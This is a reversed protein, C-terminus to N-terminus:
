VPLCCPLGAPAKKKKQQSLVSDAHILSAQELQAEARPEARKEGHFGARCDGQSQSTHDSSLCETKCYLYYHGELLILAPSSHHCFPKEQLNQGKSISCEALKCSAVSQLYTTSCSMCITLDITWVRICFIASLNGTM